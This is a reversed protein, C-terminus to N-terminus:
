VDTLVRERCSARGIQRIEFGSPSFFTLIIKCDPHLEKIKELLPRAQEFEGLSACHFWVRKGYIGQLAQNLKSHIKKRGDLWRRAKDNYRAGLKIGMYYLGICINYIAVYLYIM